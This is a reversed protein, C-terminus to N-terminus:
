VGTKAPISSNKRINMLSVGGVLIAPGTFMLRGVALSALMVSICCQLIKGPFYLQRGIKPSVVSLSQMTVCIGGFSLMGACIIFRLESNDIATLNMCGNSIELLCSVLIQVTDPLYWFVWQELLGIWVRFLIVWGCVQAMTRIAQGMASVMSFPRNKQPCPRSNGKGPILLATILASLFQIAWLMWCWGWNLIGGVMGFLFSPGCQNCFVMMRRADVKSLGGSEFAQNVCQAGVPYGGVLGTLLLSEAGEPIRLLRRVPRMWPIKAGM